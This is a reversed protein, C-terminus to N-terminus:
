YRLVRQEDGGGGALDPDVGNRTDCGTAGVVTPGGPSGCPTAGVSRARRIVHM